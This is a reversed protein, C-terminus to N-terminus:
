DAKLWDFESLDEEYLCHELMHAFGYCMCTSLGHAQLGRVLLNGIADKRRAALPMPIHRNIILCVEDIHLDAYVGPEGAQEETIEIMRELIDTAAALCLASQTRFLALEERTESKM